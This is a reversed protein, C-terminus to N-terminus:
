IKCYFCIVKAELKIRDRLGPYIFGRLDNGCTKWGM